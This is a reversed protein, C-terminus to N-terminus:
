HVTYQRRRLNSTVLFTRPSRGLESPREVRGPIVLVSLLSRHKPVPFAEAM